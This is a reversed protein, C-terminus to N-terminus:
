EAVKEVELGLGLSKWGSQSYVYSADVSLVNGQVAPYHGKVVLEGQESIAPESTLMLEGAMLTALVVKREHEARYIQRLKDNTFQSQYMQSSQALFASYDDSQIGQDLRRLDDAVLARLRVLPPVVAARPDRGLPDAKVLEQGDVTVTWLGDERLNPAQSVDFTFKVIWVGAVIKRAGLELIPASISANGGSSRHWDLRGDATIRLSAQENKWLGVWVKQDEPLPKACAIMLAVAPIALLRNYM